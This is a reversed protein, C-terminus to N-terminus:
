KNLEGIIDLMELCFSSVAQAATIKRVYCEREDKPLYNTFLQATQESQICANMRSHLLQNIVELKEADSM